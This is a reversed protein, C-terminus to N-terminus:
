AVCSGPVLPALGISGEAPNYVTVFNELFVDGLIVGIGSVQAIGLCYDAGTDLLYSAPPIAFSVINAPGHNGNTDIHVNVDPYSSIVPDITAHIVETM